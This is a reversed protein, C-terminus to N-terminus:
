PSVTGKTKSPVDAAVPAPEVVPAQQVPEEVVESTLTRM